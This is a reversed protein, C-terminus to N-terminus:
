KMLKYFVKLYFPYRCNVQNEGVEDNEPLPLSCFERIEHPLILPSGRNPKGIPLIRGKNPYWFSLCLDNEWYQIVNKWNWGFMKNFLQSLGTNSNSRLSIEVKIIKWIIYEKDKWQKFNGGIIIHLIYKKIEEFISHPKVSLIKDM